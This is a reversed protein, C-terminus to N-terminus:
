ALSPPENGPERAIQVQDNRPIDFALLRELAHEPLRKEQAIRENNDNPNGPADHHAAPNQPAHIRGRIRRPGDHLAIHGLANRNRAPVVLEVALGAVQIGHEVADLVEHGPELVNRVIDRVVEFRRQVPQARPRLARQLRAARRFIQGLGQARDDLLRVRQDLGEFESRLM